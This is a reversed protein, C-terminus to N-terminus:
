AAMTQILYTGGAVLLAVSICMCLVSAMMVGEAWRTQLGPQACPGAVLEASYGLSEAM